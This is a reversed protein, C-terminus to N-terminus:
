EAVEVRERDVRDLDVLREDGLQGGIRVPVRDHARDDLEGVPESHGDDGFPHLGGLLVLRQGHEAGIGALAEVEGFRHGSPRDVGEEGVAQDVKGGLSPAVAARLEEALAATRVLDVIPELDVPYNDPGVFAIRERVRARVRGTVAGLREPRRLDLAQTSTLLSIALISQTLEIQEALRRAALPAMTIRDGIGEEPTTSPLEFSVPAALLRAEGALAHAAWSIAGLGGQDVGEHRSLGGPLGSLPTQLLKLARETCATLAPALAIRVFDLAAALPLIDYNGASILRDEGTLVIPNDHHSNLEIALQRHAFELADRLAGNVQAVARYSLPDQLNRASGASWLYSGELAVRLRRLETRLGPYPRTEGVAPHLTSVNAAFAELELAAAVTLSDVLTGADGLALAALATSFSSNNVLALGEKAQLPM